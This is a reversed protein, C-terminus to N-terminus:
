LILNKEQKKDPAVLGSMQLRLKEVANKYNKEIDGDPPLCVMIGCDNELTVKEISDKTLACWPSFRFGIQQPNQPNPVMQYALPWHWVLKSEEGQDDLGLETVVEQGNVLKFARITRDETNM